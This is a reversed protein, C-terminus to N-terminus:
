YKLGPASPRQMLFEFGPQLANVPVTSPAPRVALDEGTVDLGPQNPAAWIQILQATKTHNNFV